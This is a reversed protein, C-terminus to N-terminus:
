VYWYPLLDPFFLLLYIPITLYIIYLVVTKKKLTKYLNIALITNIPFSLVSYLLLTIFHSYFLKMCIRKFEIIATISLPEGPPRPPVSDFSLMNYHDSILYTILTVIGFYFPLLCLVRFIKYKTETQM